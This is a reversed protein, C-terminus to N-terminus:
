SHMPKGVVFLIMMLSIFTLLDAAYYLWDDPSSIIEPYFHCQQFWLLQNFNNPEIAFLANLMQFWITEM